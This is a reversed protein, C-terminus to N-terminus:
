RLWKRLRRRGFAVGVLGLGVMAVSAPEPTTVDGGDNGCEMTWHFTIQEDGTWLTGLSTLDFSGELVFSYPVGGSYFASNDEETDPGDSWDTGGYTAMEGTLSTASLSTLDTGVALAYPDWWGPFDQAGAIDSQSFGTYLTMAVNGSADPSGFRIVADWVGDDKVDFFLDGAKHSAYSNPAFPGSGKTIDFGTQLGFYLEDDTLDADGAGVLTLGLLEVDFNQGGQGPIVPGDISEPTEWDYEENSDGDEILLSGDVTPYAHSVGGIVLLLGLLLGTIRMKTINM